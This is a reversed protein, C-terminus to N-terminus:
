MQDAVEMLGKMSGVIVIGTSISFADDSISESGAVEMMEPIGIPGAGRCRDVAPQRRTSRPSKQGAVRLASSARPDRRTEPRLPAPAQRGPHGLGQSNASPPLFSSRCCRNKIGCGCAVSGAVLVGFCRRRRVASSVSSGDRQAEASGIQYSESPSRRGSQPQPGVQDLGIGALLRKSAAL